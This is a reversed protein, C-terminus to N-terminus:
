KVSDIRYFKLSPRIKWITFIDCNQSDGTTPDRCTATKGQRPRFVAFSCRRGLFHVLTLIIGNQRQDKPAFLTLTAGSFQAPYLIGRSM